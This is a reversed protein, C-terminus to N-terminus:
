EVQMAENYLNFMMTKLRIKDLEQQNFGNQFFYYNTMDCEETEFIPQIQM